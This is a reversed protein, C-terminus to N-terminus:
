WAGRPLDLGGACSRAPYSLALFGFYIDNVVPVDEIRSLHVTTKVSSIPSM